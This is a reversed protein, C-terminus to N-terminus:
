RMDGGPQAQTKAAPKENKLGSGASLTMQENLPVPTELFRPDNHSTLQCRVVTQTKQSLKYRDASRDQVFTISHKGHVQSAHRGRSQGQLGTRAHRESPQAQTKNQKSIKIFIALSFVEPGCKLLDRRRSMRRLRVISTDLTANKDTDQGQRKQGPRTRSKKTDQRDAHTRSAASPNKKHCLM